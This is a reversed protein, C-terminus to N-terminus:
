EYKMKLKYGIGIHPRLSLNFMSGSQGNPSSSSTVYSYFSIDAMVGVDWYTKEGIDMKVGTNAGIGFLYSIVSNGASVAIQQVSPGAGIYFDKGGGLPKRFAPGVMIGIYSKFDADSFSYDLPTEGITIKGGIPLHFSDHIIVGIDEGNDFQLATFHLGITNLTTNIQTGGVSQTEMAHGVEGGVSAWSERSGSAFVTFLLLILLILVTKKM